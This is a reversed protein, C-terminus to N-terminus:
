NDNSDTNDSATSDDATDCPKKTLDISIGGTHPKLAKLAKLKAPHRLVRLAKGEIQRIRERTVNFKAGVEELTSDSPLGIGFRMRLVREFRSSLSSLLQSTIEKLNSKIASDLPSLNNADSVSDGVTGGDLEDGIPADFSIPEKITNLVKNVKEESLNLKEALESISPERGTKKFLDKSTRTIKNITEIMHVPVRITRGHDAIARSMSQRIWWMAYTSFKYGRRYEFKEVARMLGINGEQILDAFHLGKNVYRKAASVVLRLNSEIMKRKARLTTREGKQADIVLSKFSKINMLIHKRNLVNIEATIAKIEDGYREALNAWGKSRSKTSKQKIKELLLLPAVPRGALIEDWSREEIEEINEPEAERDEGHYVALFQDRAIGCKDSLSMLKGEKEILKTNIDRLITLIDNIIISNFKIEKLIDFVSDMLHDYKEQSFYGTNLQNKHMKLIKLFLDSVKVLIEKIENYVIREMSATSLAPEEEFDILDDYMAEDVSSNSDSNRLEEIKSQLTNQYYKKSGEEFKNDEDESNKVSYYADIDVLERLLMKDSFVEDCYNMIINAAVANKLLYKLTTKSGEEIEKAIRMEGERDLLNIKGIDRMYIKVPDGSSAHGGSSSAETANSDTDVAIMEALEDVTGKVDICCSEFSAFLDVLGKYSAEKPNIKSAIQSLTLTDENQKSIDFLTLFFASNSEPNFKVTVNKGSSTM